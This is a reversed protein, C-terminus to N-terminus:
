LRYVLLGGVREPTIGLPDLTSTYAPLYAPDVIIAHVGSRQLFARLDAVAPPTGARLARVAPDDAYAAPPDPRLYGGAQRFRFDAAAQWLMGHGLGGFPLVLVTEGPTLIRSVADGRLGPPIPAPARWIDSALAPFPAALSVLVLAVRAPTARRVLYSAVCVSAALAAYAVLRV